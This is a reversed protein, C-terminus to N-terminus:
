LSEVAGLPVRNPRSLGSVLLKAEGKCPPPGLNSVQLAWWSHRVEPSAQREPTVQDKVSNRSIRSVSEAQDKVTAEASAQCM